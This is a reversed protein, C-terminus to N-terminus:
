FAFAAGVMATVPVLCVVFAAVIRRRMLHVRRELDVRYRRRLEASASGVLQQTAAPTTNCALDHVLAELVGESPDYPPGTEPESGELLRRLPHAVYAPAAAELAAAGGAGGAAYLQATDLTEAVQDLWQLRADIARESDLLFVAKSGPLLGLWLVGFVMSAVAIGLLSWGALGTPGGVSVLLVAALGVPLVPLSWAARRSESWRRNDAEDGAVDALRAREQVDTAAGRLLTPDVGSADAVRLM